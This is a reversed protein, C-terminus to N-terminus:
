RLMKERNEAGQLYSDLGINGSLKLTLDVCEKFKKGALTKPGGVLEIMEYEAQILKRHDKDYEM